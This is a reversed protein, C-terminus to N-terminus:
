NLLRGIRWRVAAPNPRYAEEKPSLLAQGGLAFLDSEGKSRRADVRRSVQWVLNEDPSILRQDMAWHHNKCLSIGNSPRDDRTESFPILHAADVMTFELEPLRIRLGCACCQYDYIEVVERRFAASRRAQSEASTDPTTRNRPGLLEARKDPFYRAIIAERLEARASSNAILTRWSASFRGFVKGTDCDGVLPKDALPTEAGGAIRVPSWFEDSRMFLFPNEPTPEDNASQVAKFSQIFRARLASSWEVRDPRAWGEEIGDLVTLLLIPKHPREHRDPGTGIVGVNLRYVTDIAGALPLSNSTM